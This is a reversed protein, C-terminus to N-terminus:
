QTRGRAGGAARADIAAALAFGDCVDDPTVLETTVEPGLMTIFVAGQTARIGAIPQPPPFSASPGLGIPDHAESETTLSILGRYDREIRDRIEPTFVDHPAMVLLCGDVASLAAGLDELEKLLKRARM